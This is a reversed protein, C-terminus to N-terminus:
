IGLIFVNFIITTLNPLVLQHVNMMEERLLQKLRDDVFPCHSFM